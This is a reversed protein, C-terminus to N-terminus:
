KLVQLSSSSRRDAAPGRNVTFVFVPRARSMEPTTSYLCYLEDLRRAVPTFPDFMQFVHVHTLPSFCDVLSVTNEGLTQLM